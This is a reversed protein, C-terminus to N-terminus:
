KRKPKPASKQHSSKQPKGPSPKGPSPKGSAPKRAAPNGHSASSKQPAPKRSTGSGRQSDPRVLCDKGFGILDARGCKMLAERVLPANQPKNYQLLARQLQKEHYDTAVYVPKMTFPDIGTYFM